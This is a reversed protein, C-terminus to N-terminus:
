WACPGRQNQHGMCGHPHPGTAIPFVCSLIVRPAFPKGAAPRSVMDDAPLDCMADIIEPTLMARAPHAGM